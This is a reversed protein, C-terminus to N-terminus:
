SGVGDCSDAERFAQELEGGPDLSQLESFTSSVDTSMASLAASVESVASLIGSVGSVDDVAATIQSVSDDISEALGDLSEKAQSGADTEPTGLGQLEDVFDNTASKFDDVSAGLADATLSGAQLSDTTSTASERWSTIASCVGDAWTTASSEDDGGGCGAAASALVAVAAWRGFTRM